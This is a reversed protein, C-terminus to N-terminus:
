KFLIVYYFASNTIYATGFFLNTFYDGILM